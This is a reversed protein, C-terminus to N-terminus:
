RVIANFMRWYIVLYLLMLLWPQLIPSDPFFLILAFYIDIVALIFVAQRKIFDLDALKLASSFIIAGPLLLLVMDYFLLYPAIIPTLATAILVLRDFSGNNLDHRLCKNSRYFFYVALAFALLYIPLKIRAGLYPSLASLAAAPLSSIINHPVSYATNSFTNASLKLCHWWLALVDPPFIAISLLQISLLGCLLGALSRWRRYCTLALAILGVPVLFQPKLFTISWLLGASFERNRKLLCYGAIMPLVGFVLGVQGSALLHFFPLLAFSWWFISNRGVNLTTELMRASLWLAALSIVQWVILAWMLPLQSFPMLVFALIPPGLYASIEHIGIGSNLQHAFKDFVSDTFTNCAFPPYLDLLRGKAVLSAAPYFIVLFDALNRREPKFIDFVMVCIVTAIAISRSLVFKLKAKEQEQM